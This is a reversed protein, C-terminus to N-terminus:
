VGEWEIEIRIGLINRKEQAYCWEIRKDDDARGKKQGPCLFDAIEDVIYKFAMRLNDHEDLARGGLRTLTVRCPIFIQGQFPKLSKKVFFQQRRHRKAKVTWHESSNGESVTVINLDYSIKM